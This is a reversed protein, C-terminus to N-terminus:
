IEPLITADVLAFPTRGKPANSSQAELKTFTSEAGRVQGFPQFAEPTLPQAHLTVEKLSASSAM